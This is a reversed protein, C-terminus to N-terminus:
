GPHLDAPLVSLVAQFTQRADQLAQFADSERPELSPGPYRFETSFPMLQRAAPMLVQLGSDFGSCEALLAEVARLDNRAKLLWQRVERWVPSDVPTSV